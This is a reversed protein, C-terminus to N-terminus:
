QIKKTYLLKFIMEGNDLAIYKLQGTYAVNPNEEDSGSIKPLELMGTEFSYYPMAEIMSWDIDFIEVFQTIKFISPSTQQLRVSYFKDPQNEGETRLYPLEIVSHEVSFTAEAQFLYGDTLTRLFAVIAEVEQDTLGLDGLEDTNVNVAVEPSAWKADVDRTNYFEVVEKLDTFVGNHMYPATKAVNRLSPVKFKGNESAGVTEGLGIDVFGAGQLALIEPSSPTGLNDYTFDTFLPMSGDDTKSIHCAACNGKNEDEFLALGKQEQESLVVRGTLFYDYKSTFRNFSATHEFAAIAQAMKDYAQMTDNLIGRGFVQEFLLAYNSEKIKNIVSQEDANNMENANLFPGKAQEKLNAARGDLFQGGIYLGEDADFHFQPAFAAYAASPANRTGHRGSVAGASVVSSQTPDTLSTKIDHCSACSLGEPSSLNEDFFIKKGLQQELTLQKAESLSLPTTEAMINQSFGVLGALYFIIIRKFKM